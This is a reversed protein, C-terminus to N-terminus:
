EANLTSKEATDAQTHAPRWNARAIMWAKDLLTVRYGLEDADQPAVKDVMWDIRKSLENEAASTDDPLPVLTLPAYRELWAQFEGPLNADNLDFVRQGEDSARFEEFTSWTKSLVERTLQEMGELKMGEESVLKRAEDLESADLLAPRYDRNWDKNLLHVADLWLRNRQLVSRTAQGRQVVQRVGQLLYENNSKNRMLAELADLYPEAPSFMAASSQNM